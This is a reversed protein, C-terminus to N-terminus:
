GEGAARASVHERLVHQIRCGQGAQCVVALPSLLRVRVPYGFWFVALYAALGMYTRALPANQARVGRMGPGALGWLVIFFFCCSIAFYAWREVRTSLAGFLGLIIMAIDALVVRRLVWACCACSRWIARKRKLAKAPSPIKTLGPLDHAHRFGQFAMRQVTSASTKCLLDMM